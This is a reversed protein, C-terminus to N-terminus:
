ARRYANVFRGYPGRWFRPMLRTRGLTTEASITHAPPHALVRRADEGRALRAIRAGLRGYRSALEGDGLDALQGILTIGDRALHRQMAAGVGWLLSVPKDGFFAQAESRSLIAFGRPKDLDSAIKALFKNESLGISVTVGLSTEVRVALGVLLQAPCKRHLAQTGSLDLFAEDISVLTRRTAHTAEDRRPGRPRGPSVQGHEAPDRSRGPLRGAGQVDAHRLARWVVAGCLLLRALRRPRRRWHYGSPRGTGAPRTFRM